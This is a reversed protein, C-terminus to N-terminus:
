GDLILIGFNMYFFFRFWRSFIKAQFFCPVLKHVFKRLIHLLFKPGELIFLTYSFPNEHTLFLMAVEKCSRSRRCFSASSRTFRASASRSRCFSDKTFSSFCLASSSSRSARTSRRCFYLSCLSFARRADLTLLSSIFNQGGHM